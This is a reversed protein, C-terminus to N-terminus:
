TEIALEMQIRGFLEVKETVEESEEGPGDETKEEKAKREHM